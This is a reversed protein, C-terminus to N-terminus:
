QRLRRAGIRAVRPRHGRELPTSTARVPGLSAWGQAYLRRHKVRKVLSTMPTIRCFTDCGTAINQPAGQPLQLRARFRELDASARFTHIHGLGPWPESSGLDGM